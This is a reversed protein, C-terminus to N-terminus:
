LKFRLPTDAELNVPKSLGPHGQITITHPGRAVLIATGGDSEVQTPIGDVVVTGSNPFTEVTLHVLAPLPVTLTQGPSVTVTRAERFFVKASTLELRHPGPAAALASNARVEGQDKGDLRVRVGYEGSFRLGGPANADVTKPEATARTQAAPPLTYVRSGPTEGELLTFALGQADKSFTLDHRRGQNWDPVKLPTVGDLKVADMVVTAGAPETRLWEESRVPELELKGPQQGGQYRYEKPKFGKRELEVVDGAQMPVPMPTTGLVQGGKIVTVHAPVTDLLVQTAGKHLLLFGGLAAAAAGGALGTWLLPRGKARVPMALTAGGPVLPIAGTQLAAPAEGPLLGGLLQM